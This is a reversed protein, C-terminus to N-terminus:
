DRRHPHDNDVGTQLDEWQARAYSISQGIPSKPQARQSQEDLWEGFANLLPVADRKRIVRRPRRAPANRADTQDDFPVLM